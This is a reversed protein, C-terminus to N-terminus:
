AGKRNRAAAQEAAKLLTDRIPLPLARREKRLRDLLGPGGASILRGWLRASPRDLAFEFVQPSLDTPWNEVSRGARADLAALATGAFGRLWAPQDATKSWMEIRTRAAMANSDAAIVMAAAVAALNPEHQAPDLRENLRPTLGLRATVWRDAAREATPWGADIERLLAYELQREATIVRLAPVPPPPYSERATRLPPPNAIGSTRAWDLAAVVTTRDVDQPASRDSLDGFRQGALRALTWTVRQQDIPPCDSLQGALTSVIEKRLTEYQPGSNALVIGAAARTGATATQSTRDLVRRAARVRHRFDADADRPPKAADWIQTSYREDRQQGLWSWSLFLTELLTGVITSEPLQALVHLGEAQRDAAEAARGVATRDASAAEAPALKALREFFMRRRALDSWLAAAEASVTADALMARARIVHEKLAPHRQLDRLAAASAPGGLNAVLDITRAANFIAQPDRETVPVRALRELMPAVGAAGQETIADAAQKREALSRAAFLRQVLGDLRPRGATPSPESVVSEIPKGSWNRWAEVGVWVTLGILLASSAAITWMRVSLRRLRAALSLREGSAQNTACRPCVATGPALEARCRVCKTAVSARVAATHSIPMPM